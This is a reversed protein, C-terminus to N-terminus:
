GGDLGTKAALLLWTKDGSVDLLVQMCASAALLAIVTKLALRDNRSM